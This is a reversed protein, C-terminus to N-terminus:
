GGQPGAEKHRDGESPLMLRWVALWLGSERRFVFVEQGLDKKRKGNEEWDIEFGYGAVGTDGWVSIQPEETKFDHIEARGVFDAYSGIVAAKGRGIIQLGPAVMQINEHFCGALDETRGQLWSANIEEVAKRIGTVAAVDDPTEEAAWFTRYIKWSGDAQRKLIRMFRMRQSVVAGDPSSEAGRFDGWDFAVDGLVEVEKFDQVYEIIKGEKTREFYKELDDAVGPLGRRPEGRPPILMIGDDMLSILTELDRKLSAERDRRHLEEIERYDDRESM